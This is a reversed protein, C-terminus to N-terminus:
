ELIIDLSFYKDVIDKTFLCSNIHNFSIKLLTKRSNTFYQSKTNMFTVKFFTRLLLYCHILKIRFLM